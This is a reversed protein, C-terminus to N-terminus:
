AGLPSRGAASACRRSRRWRQRRGSAARSRGARPLGRCAASSRGHQSSSPHSVPFDGRGHSALGHSPRTRQVLVSRGRHRSRLIRGFQHPRSKRRAQRGRMRGDHRLRTKSSPVKEGLLLFLRPGRPGRLSCANVVIRSQPRMRERPRRRRAQDAQQSRDLRQDAGAEDVAVTAASGPAAPRRMMASSSM